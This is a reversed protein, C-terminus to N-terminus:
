VESQTPDSFDETMMYAAYTKSAALATNFTITNKSISGTDTVVTPATGEVTLNSITTGTDVGAHDGITNFHLRKELGLVSGIGIDYTAGDDDQIPIVVQTVTKFAVAGTSATSQNAIITFDESIANGRIDTGSVSVTGEKVDATTGTPTIVVNRAFDIEEDFSSVTTISVSDTAEDEALYDAEAAHPKEWMQKYIGGKVPIVQGTRIKRGTNVSQSEM